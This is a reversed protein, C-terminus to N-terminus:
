EEETEWLHKLKVYNEEFAITFNKKDKTNRNFFELIYRNHERKMEGFEYRENMAKLIEQETSEFEHEMEKREETYHKKAKERLTNKSKLHFSSNRTNGSQSTM